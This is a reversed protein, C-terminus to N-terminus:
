DGFRRKYFRLCVAFILSIVALMVFPNIGEAIGEGMAIRVIQGINSLLLFGVTIYLTQSSAKSLILQRREDGQRSLSILMACISIVCALFIGLFVFLVVAIVSTATRM